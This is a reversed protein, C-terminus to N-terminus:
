AAMLWHEGDRWVLERQELDLLHALVSRGAAGVLRSDLGVYMRQVMEPITRPGDGVLRLIQGERSKRHGAM